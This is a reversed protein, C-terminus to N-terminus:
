PCSAVQRGVLTLHHNIGAQLWTKPNGTNQTNIDKASEAIYYDGASYNGGKFIDTQKVLMQALAPYQKFGAGKPNRLGEGRVIVWRDEVAYRISASPNSASSRPAYIPHQITYDAFSPPRDVRGSLRRWMAWDARSIDYQNHKEFHSLDPPFSGSAVTFTRWRRIAPIMNIKDVLSTCSTQEDVIKFDVLLDINSADLGNESVFAEISSGESEQSFNSETIRLCLGQGTERAFDTAVQKTQKDSAFGIVPIISIAPVLPFLPGSRKGQGLIERLAKARISADLLQVDLFFVERGCCRLLQSPIKPADKLFEGISEQLLQSPTKGREDKPQPMTLEVLPTIVIKDEPRLNQLAGKESSAM